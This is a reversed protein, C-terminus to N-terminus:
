NTHFTPMPALIAVLNFRIPKSCSKPTIDKPHITSEHVLSVLMKKKRLVFSVRIRIELLRIIFFLLTMVELM